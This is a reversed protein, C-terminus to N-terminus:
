AGAAKRAPRSSGSRAARASAVEDATGIVEVSQAVLELVFPHLLDNPRQKLNVGVAVEVSDGEEPM